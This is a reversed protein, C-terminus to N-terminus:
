LGYGTISVNGDDVFINQPNLSGHPYKENHFENIAEGIRIALQIKEEYSKIQFMQTKLNTKLFNEIIYLKDGELIIKIENM